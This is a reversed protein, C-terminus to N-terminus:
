HQSEPVRLLTNNPALVLLDASFIIRFPMKGRVFTVANQSVNQQSVIHKKKFM